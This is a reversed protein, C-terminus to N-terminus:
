SLCKWWCCFQIILSFPTDVNMVFGSCWWLGNIREDLLLCWCKMATTQSAYIVLNFLTNLNIIDVNRYDYKAWKFLTVPYVFTPTIEFNLPNNDVESPFCNAGFQWQQYNSWRLPRNPHKKNWVLLFRDMESFPNVLHTVLDFGRKRWVKGFLNSGKPFSM